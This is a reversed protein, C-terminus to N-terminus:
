NIKISNIINEFYAPNSIYVQKFSSFAIVKCVKESPIFIYTFKNPYYGKVYIDFDIRSYGKYNSHRVSDYDVSEMNGIYTRIITDIKIDPDLTIKQLSIQADRKSVLALDYILHNKKHANLEESTKWNKDLKFSINEVPIEVSDISPVNYTIKPVEKVNVPTYEYQLFSDSRKDIRGIKIIKFGKAGDSEKQKTSVLRFIPSWIAFNHLLTYGFEPWPDELDFFDKKSLGSRDVNSILIAWNSIDMAIFQADQIDGKLMKEPIFNLKGDILTLRGLVISESKSNLSKSRVALSTENLRLVGIIKLNKPSRSDLYYVYEGDLTNNLYDATEHKIKKQGACSPITIFTLALMIVIFYNKM